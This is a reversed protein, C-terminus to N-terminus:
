KATNEGLAQYLFCHGTAARFMLGLGAAKMAWGSMSRGPALIIMAAGAIASIARESEGVNKEMSCSLLGCSENAKTEQQTNAPKSTVAQM